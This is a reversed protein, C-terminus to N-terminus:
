KKGKLLNWVRLECHCYSDLKKSSISEYIKFYNWLNIGSASSSSLMRFYLGMGLLAGGGAGRSSNKLFTKSSFWLYKSICCSFNKCFICCIYKASKLSQFSQETDFQLALIFKSSNSHSVSCDIIISPCTNIITVYLLRKDTRLAEIFYFLSIVMKHFDLWATSIAKM